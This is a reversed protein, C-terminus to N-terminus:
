NFSKFCLTMFNGHRIILVWMKGNQVEIQPKTGKVTHKPLNLAWPSLWILIGVNFVTKTGSRLLSFKWLSLQEREPWIARLVPNLVFLTQSVLLITLYPAACSCSCSITYVKKKVAICFVTVFKYQLACHVATQWRQENPFKNPTSLFKMWPNM